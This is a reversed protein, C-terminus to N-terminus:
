RKRHATRLFRRCGDCFRFGRGDIVARTYSREGHRNYDGKSMPCYRGDAAPVYAYHHVLGFNHGLEHLGVKLLRELLRAPDRSALRRTSVIAVHNRNDKCGYMFRFLEDASGDLLDADTIGLIHGGVEEDLAGTLLDAEIQDVPPAQHDLTEIRRVLGRFANGIREAIADLEVGRVPRGLRVVKLRSLDRRRPNSSLGKPESM